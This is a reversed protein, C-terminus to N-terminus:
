KRDQPKPPAGRRPALRDLDRWYQRILEKDRDLLPLTGAELQAQAARIEVEITARDEPDTVKSLLEQKLAIQEEIEAKRTEATEEARVVNVAYEVRDSLAKWTARTLHYKELLTDFEVQSKQGLAEEDVNGQTAIMEATHMDAYKRFLNMMEEMVDVYLRVDAERLPSPPKLKHPGDHPTKVDSTFYLVLAVVAAVVLASVLWVRVM